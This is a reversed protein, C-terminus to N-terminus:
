AESPSFKIYISLMTIRDEIRRYATFVFPQRGFATPRVSEVLLPNKDTKPGILSVLWETALKYKRGFLIIPEHHSLFNSYRIM